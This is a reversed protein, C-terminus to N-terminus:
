QLIFGPYFGLDWFSSQSYSINIVFELFNSKM